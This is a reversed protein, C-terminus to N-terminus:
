AREAWFRFVNLHWRYSQITKPRRGAAQRSTLFFEICTDIHKDM